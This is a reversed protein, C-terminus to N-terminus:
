REVNDKTNGNDSPQTLNKLARDVIDIGLESGSSSFPNIGLFRATGLGIM